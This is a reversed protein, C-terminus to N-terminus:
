TRSPRQGAPIGMVANSVRTDLARIHVEHIILVFTATALAIALAVLSLGFTM